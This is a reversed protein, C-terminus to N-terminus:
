NDRSKPTSELNFEMIKELRRRIDIKCSILKLVKKDKKRVLRYFRISKFYNVAVHYYHFTFLGFLPLCVLFFLTYLWDHFFQHFLIVLLIYWVPFLWFWIVFKFSAHFVRDKIKKTMVRPFQYPLYNLLLGALFVPFTVALLVLETINEWLPKSTKRTSFKTLRLADLQKNHEEILPATETIEQPHEAAYLNIRNVTEKMDLYCHYYNLEFCQSRNVLSIEALNIITNYFEPNDVCVMVDKLGAKVSATLENLGKAPNERYGPMFDAVDIPKGFNVVLKNRFSYYDNYDIGVPIIKVSEKNELAEESMFAIRALGKKLQRLMRVPEHTGEPLIALPKGSKLVDLTKDFIEDNKQLSAYGDRIRYIPLIKLFYLFHAMRKKRFIDARALFVMQGPYAYLVALADMLANQHNLAFIVPKKKPVNKRGKIYFESYYFYHFVQSFLKLLFYGFSWKEIRKLSM